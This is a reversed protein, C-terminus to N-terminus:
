VAQLFSAFYMKGRSQVIKALGPHRGSVRSTGLLCINPPGDAGQQATISQQLLQVAQRDQGSFQSYSQSGRLRLLTFYLIAAIYVSTKTAYM